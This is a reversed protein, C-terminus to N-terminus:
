GWHNDPSGYITATVSGSISPPPSFANGPIIASPAAHTTRGHLSSSPSFTLVTYPLTYNIHCQRM